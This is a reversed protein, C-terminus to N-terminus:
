QKAIELMQEKLGKGSNGNEVQYIDDIVPKGGEEEVHFIVVTDEKNAPDDGMCARNNFLATVQGDGDDEVRVNEFPCGDQGNAIVDYDFPSGTTEGEPLDFAPFKSAARYADAFSKSYITGLLDESFYDNAGANEARWNEEALKMLTKVPQTMDAAEAPAAAALMLPLLLLSIKKLVFKDKRPPLLRIGSM